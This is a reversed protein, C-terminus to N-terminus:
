PIQVGKYLSNPQSILGAVMAFAGTLVHPLYVEQAFGFLWPSTALLLGLVMDMDLHFAMPISKRIGLEYNTFLSLFLVAAASIYFCISAPLNTSFGFLWPAASMFGVSLYDIVGHTKRSIKRM